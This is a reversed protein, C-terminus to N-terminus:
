ICASFMADLVGTPRLRFRADLGGSPFSLGSAFGAFRPELLRDIQHHLAPLRGGAPELALKANTVVASGPEDFAHFRLPDDRRGIM